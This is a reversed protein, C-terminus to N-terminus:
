RSWDPALRRRRRAVMLGALGAAVLVASRPEPVVTGPGSGATRVAFGASNYSFATSPDVGDPVEFADFRATGWFDSFQNGEAEVTLLSVLSYTQGAQVWLGQSIPTVGFGFPEYTQAFPSAWGWSNKNSGEEEFNSGYFEWQPDYDQPGGRLPPALPNDPKAFVGLKLMSRGGDEFRGAGHREVQFQLFLWGSFTPTFESVWESTAIAETNVYYEYTGANPDGVDVKVTASYGGRVEAYAKSIGFDTQATAGSQCAGLPTALTSFCSALGWPELVGVGYRATVAETTGLTKYEKSQIIRSGCRSSSWTIPNGVFCFGYPANEFDPIDATLTASATSQVRPGALVKNYLQTSTGNVGQGLAVAPAVAVLAMMTGTMWWKHRARKVQMHTM